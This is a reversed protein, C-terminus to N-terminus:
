RTEKVVNDVAQTLETWAALLRQHETRGSDTTSYYKRAPGSASPRLSSTLFGAKELRTLAPYVTGETLEAFGAAQLRTVVSYGYDEHGDLLLLLLPALIGKLMQPDYTM